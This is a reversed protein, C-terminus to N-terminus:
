CVGQAEQLVTIRDDLRLDLVKADPMRKRIDSYHDLFNQLRDRFNHDGLRLKIAHGQMNGIVKMDDLDAADIESVKDALPGLEQLFSQVRRVRMGRMAAKEDIRIGRILPVGFQHPRQPQDLIVGDADILSWRTVCESEIGMFAAPRRETIHVIVRNPWLRVISADKIWNVRLLAKRRDALPLLFISRGLDNAFVRLVQARNAFTVGEVILNPSEQGYDVPAPLVFRADSTLFKEFRQTSWLVAALAVCFALAWLLFRAALRTTASKERSSTKAM